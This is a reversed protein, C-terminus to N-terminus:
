AKSRGEHLASWTSLAPIRVGVAADQYYRGVPYCRRCKPCIQVTGGDGNTSHTWPGSAIGRLVYAAAAEDELRGARCLALCRQRRTALIVSASSTGLVLEEGFGCECRLRNGARTALSLTGMRVGHTKVNTPIGANGM